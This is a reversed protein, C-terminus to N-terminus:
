LACICRLLADNQERWMFLSDGCLLAQCVMYHMYCVRQAAVYLSCWFGEGLVHLGSTEVGEGAGRTALDTEAKCTIKIDSGNLKLIELVEVFM